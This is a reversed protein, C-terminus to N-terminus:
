RNSGGCIAREFQDVCERLHAVIKRREEEDDSQRSCAIEVSEKLLDALGVKYVVEEGGALAWGIDVELQWGSPDLIVTAPHHALLGALHTAATREIMSKCERLFREDSIHVSGIRAEEAGLVKVDM